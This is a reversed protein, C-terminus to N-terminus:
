DMEYHIKDKKINRNIYGCLPQLNNKYEKIKYKNNEVYLREKEKVSDKKRRISNNKNRCEKCASKLGSKSMSCKHYESSDKVINCQTCVKM